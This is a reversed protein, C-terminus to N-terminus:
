SIRTAEIVCPSVPKYRDFNSIFTIAESSSYVAGNLTIHGGVAIAEDPFMRRVARAIPCSSFSGRIGRYIDDLLIEIRLTTPYKKTVLM